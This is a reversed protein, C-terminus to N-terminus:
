VLAVHRRCDMHHASQVISDTCDDKVLAVHWRRGMHHASQIIRDYLGISVLQITDQQVIIKYWHWMGNATWITHRSRSYLGTMCIWHRSTTHNGPKVIMKYLDWMSDAIRTCVVCYISSNGIPVTPGGMQVLGHWAM